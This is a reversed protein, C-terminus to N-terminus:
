LLHPAPHSSDEFICVGRRAVADRISALTAGDQASDRIYELEVEVLGPFYTTRELLEGLLMPDLPDYLILKRTPILCMHRFEIDTAHVIRLTRLPVRPIPKLQKVITLREEDRGEAHGSLSRECLGATNHVAKGFDGPGGCSSITLDCLAPCKRVMNAVVWADM